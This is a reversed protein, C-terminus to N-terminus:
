SGVRKRAWDLYKKLGEVVARAVADRYPQSRLRREEVPNTLCGVEVIVGPRGAGALVASPLGLVGRGRQRLNLAFSQSMLSALRRSLLLYPGQATDWAVPGAGQARPPRLGQVLNYDQFFVAFGTEVPDLGGGAHLSVFVVPRINNILGAREEPTPNSREDDRTLTVALGLQENILVALQRALALTLQAESYGEPGRVGQDAGGHGPDIVVRDAGSVSPQAIALAGWFVVLAASM